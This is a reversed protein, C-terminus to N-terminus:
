LEAANRLGGQPLFGMGELSEKLRRMAYYTRSKVTGKPIRLVRGVEEESMGQIHRLLLISRDKEKLGALAVRLLGRSELIWAAEVPAPGGDPIEEALPVRPAISERRGERKFRNIALRAAMRFLWTKFSGKRADFLPAKRWARYFTEETLDEAATRDSGMRYLFAFVSRSYRAYLIELASEDGDVCSRILSEDHITEKNERFSM